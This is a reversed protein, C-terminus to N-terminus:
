IAVLQQRSYSLYSLSLTPPISQIPPAPRILAEGELARFRSRPHAPLEKGGGRGQAPSRVRGEELEECRREEIVNRPGEM